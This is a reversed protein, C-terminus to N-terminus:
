ARPPGPPHLSPAGTDREARFSSSVKSFLLRHDRMARIRPRAGITSPLESPSGLVVNLRQPGTELGLGLRDETPRKSRGRLNAKGSSM